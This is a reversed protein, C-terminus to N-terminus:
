SLNGAQIYAAFLDRAYVGADYEEVVTMNNWRYDSTYTDVVIYYTGDPDISDATVGDAFYHTYAYHEANVVRSLLDRGSISCLVINNDFPLLTQLDGYTVNGANLNYPSRVSIFGGGLTIAYDEGWRAVGADYYLKGVLRRITDSNLGGSITGLIEYAASVEDAYKELLTDVISDGDLNAYVSHSVLAVDTLEVSGTALNCTLEAHMIGGKNDGRNQMHYVGYADQLLYGQHTHGEFVLDVYGNSLEVDYYSSLDSTSITTSGTGSDYGDHLSYVIFDAGSDRLKESEAKVLETLQNGTVFYIDEVKDTAISSYCDGIAGIIGIQIEGLDVMVSADCYEVRADTERSYVNIALFPFDALTENDEIFAEGWDYEHNGMTMSVFGVDNMWDTMILGHTLNSESTGQWMDGVSLVVTNPNNKQARKLYATMEDVGPQNDGDVLKGHLDNVAYLDVTVLIWQNCLDCIGNENADVHDCSATNGADTESTTDSTDSQAKCGTLVLCMIVFIAFFRRM